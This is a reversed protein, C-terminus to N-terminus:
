SVFGECDILRKGGAKVSRVSGDCLVFGLSGGPKLAAELLAADGSNPAAVKQVAPLLLGILIAIIGNQNTIVQFQNAQSLGILIANVGGPHSKRISQALTQLNQFSRASQSGTGLVTKVPQGAILVSM